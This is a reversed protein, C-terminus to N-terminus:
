SASQHDATKKRRAVGILGILGSGFLWLSVPVPVHATPPLASRYTMALNGIINESFYSNNMLAVSDGVAWTGISEDSPNALSDWSTGVRLSDTVFLWTTTGEAFTTTTGHTESPGAISGALYTVAFNDEFASDPFGAADLSTDIQFDFYVSQGAVFGLAADYGADADSYFNNISGEFRLFETAAQIHPSYLGSILLFTLAYRYM